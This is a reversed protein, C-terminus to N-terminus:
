LYLTVKHEVISLVVSDKHVALVKFLDGVEDGAHCRQLSKGEINIYASYKGGIKLICQLKLKSKIRQITKDAMPRKYYGDISKILDSRYFKDFAAAPNGDNKKFLEDIQYDSSASREIDATNIKVPWAM